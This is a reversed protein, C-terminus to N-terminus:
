RAKPAMAKTLNANMSNLTAVFAEVSYGFVFAILYILPRNATTALSLVNAPLFLMSLTLGALAAFAIRMTTDLFGLPAAAPTLVRWMCYVIAGLAGFVTPLWLNQVNAVKRRLQEAQKQLSLRTLFGDSALKDSRGAFKAADRWDESLSTYSARLIRRAGAPAVGTGPKPADATAPDAAAGQPATVQAAAGGDTAAAYRAPCVFRLSRTPVRCHRDINATWLIDFPTDFNILRALDSPLEAERTFHARLEDRVENYVLLPEVNQEPPSEVATEFFGEMEILRLIQGRQDFELFREFEELTANARGAWFSYTLAVITLLIGIALIAMEGLTQRWTKDRFPSRGALVESMTFADTTARAEEYAAQFADFLAKREGSGSPPVSASDFPLIAAVLKGNAKSGSRTLYDRLARAQFLIREFEHNLAGATPARRTADGARAM